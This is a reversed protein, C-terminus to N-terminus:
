GDLPPGPNAPDRTPTSPQGRLGAPPAGGPAPEPALPPAVLGGAAPREPLRLDIYRAGAAGPHALVRSAAAWKAALRSGDGFVLEPGARLEVVVGRPDAPAVAQARRRLADPALAAVRLMALAARERLRGSRIPRRSEIVPLRGLGARRELVTGDAAVPSRSAASPGVLAVAIREVVHIRLTHPFDPRAVVSGVARHAAVARELEDTRVHLTTMQRGAAILAARTRPSADDSLGTVRVTEVRVLASDRFWLLYGAALAAAALASALLGRRLRATLRVTSLATPLARLAEARM